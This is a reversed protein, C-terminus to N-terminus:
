LLCVKHSGLSKQQCKRAFVCNHKKNKVNPAYVKCTVRIFLGTTKRRGEKGPVQLKQFLRHIDLINVETVEIHSEGSIIDKPTKM